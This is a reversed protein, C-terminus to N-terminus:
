KGDDLVVDFVILQDTMHGVRTLQHKQNCKLLKETILHYKQQQHTKETHNKLNQSHKPNDSNSKLM